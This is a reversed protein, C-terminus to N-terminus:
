AAKFDLRIGDKIVARVPNRGLEYVLFHYNPVDLVLVDARKGPELSGIERALGLSNAANLTAATLCEAASWRYRLAAAAMALPMSQTMCSGPNFDTSVCVKVARDILARGPAEQTQRLVLPVLPCLVASTRAAALAEIGQVSIHELHDASDAQLEAALEAGGLPTLQDVHLRLGLGLSRARELIRRAARLDFTHAEAFVDCFRALGQQAVQPLMEEVVLEVYRAPQERYEAPVDHAGLFTPVSRIGSATAARQIARLSKLEAACSLGYGSKAEVTTTGLELFRQFHREVCSELREESCAQVGRATSQIGGGARAIEVYTAGASRQEFELERTTAFAPHTHADVFAPILTGGRADLVQRPQYRPVLETEPGLEVIQGRDIALAAREVVRLRAMDAGVRASDGLPTAAQAAGVILLDIATQTKNRPPLRHM